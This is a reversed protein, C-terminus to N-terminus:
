CRRGGVSYLFNRKYMGKKMIKGGNELNHVHFRVGQRTMNVKNALQNVTLDEIKLYNLILDSNGKSKYIPRNYIKFGDEIKKHLKGFYAQPYKKILNQYDRFLKKMGDRKIYLFGYDGKKVFTSSYGLRKCIKYLDETLNVNKLRIDILTSDIKAEDIIFALLFALQNIKPKNFLAPPVRARDSLFSRKNLGYYDIFLQSLVPPCIAVYNREFYEDKKYDIKGFLSEIKKFYLDRLEKDYQRYRLYPQREKYGVVCGDAMTHAIVMDFIPTLRIPLLPNNIVNYGKKTKYSIISRQLYETTINLNYCCILFVDLPAYYKKYYSYKLLNRFSSYPLKIEGKILSYFKEKSRFKDRISSNIYTLFSDNPIIYVYKGLEWINIKEV